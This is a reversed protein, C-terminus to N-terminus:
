WPAEQKASIKDKQEPVQLVGVMRSSLIWGWLLDVVFIFVTLLIVTTLVVVTDQILRRRSTWSVKNIEAETAILFDAFTPYNVLRYAFWLSAAGLLLPVTFRLDPLVRLSISSFPLTYVLDRSGTTDLTKHALLTYIGCGALVLVGLITGRRVRVGQNKKYGAATFWGQEEFEIVRKQFGAQFFARVLVIVLALGIGATLGLGISPSLTPAATRLVRGFIQAIWAAGLIGVVGTFIGARAGKPPNEGLLRLGFWVLGAAAAGLVVLLLAADMFSGAAGALAPSIYTAWVERLGYFVVGLGGLVYATGALSSVALPDLPRRSTTEPTNKVAVAMASGKRGSERSSLTEMGQM